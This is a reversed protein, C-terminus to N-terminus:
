KMVPEGYYYFGKCEKLYVDVINGKGSKQSQKGTYILEGYQIMKHIDTKIKEKNNIIFRNVDGNNDKGMIREAYRQECHNSIKYEINMREEM